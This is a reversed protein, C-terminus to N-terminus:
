QKMNVRVKLTFSVRYTMILSIQLMKAELRRLAQNIWWTTRVWTLLVEKFRLDQCYFLGVERILETLYLIELFVQQHLQWVEAQIKSLLQITTRDEINPISCRPIGTLIQSCNSVILLWNSNIKLIFHIHFNLARILLITIGIAIAIEAKVMWRVKFDQNNKPSWRQNKIQLHVKITLTLSIM